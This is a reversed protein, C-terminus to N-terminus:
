TTAKIFVRFNIIRAHFGFDDPTDGVIRPTGKLLLRDMWLPLGYLKQQMVSLRKSNKMEVVDRVFLHVAVRCEGYGARDTVGGSVKVVVFDNIGDDTAKPRNTWIYQSVGLARIETVFKNEIYTIDFDNM